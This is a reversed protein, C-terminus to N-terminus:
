PAEKPRNDNAARHLDRAAQRAILRVIPLLMTLAPEAAKGSRGPDPGPPRDDNAVVLTILTTERDRRPMATEM